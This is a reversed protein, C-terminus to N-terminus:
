KEHVPALMMDPTVVKASANFAPFLEHNDWITSVSSDLTILQPNQQIRQSASLFYSGSYSIVHDM